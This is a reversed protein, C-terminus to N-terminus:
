KKPSLLLLVLLGVALFVFWVLAARRILPREEQGESRAKTVRWVRFALIIVIVAVIVFPMAQAVLSQQTMVGISQHEM